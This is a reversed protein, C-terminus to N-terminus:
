GSGFLVGPKERAEARFSEPVVLGEMSEPRM